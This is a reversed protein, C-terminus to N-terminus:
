RGSNLAASELSLRILRLRSIFQAIRGRIPMPVACSQGFNLPTKAMAARKRSQPSSISGNSLPM